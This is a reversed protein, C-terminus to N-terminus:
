VCSDHEVVTVGGVTETGGTGNGAHGSFSDGEIYPCYLDTSANVSTAACRRSVTTGTGLYYTHECVEHGSQGAGVANQDFKGNSWSGGSINACDTNSPVSIGCYTGVGREGAVSQAPALGVIPAFGALALTALLPKGVGLRTIFRKV